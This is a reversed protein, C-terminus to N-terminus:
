YVKSFSQAHVPVVLIGNHTDIEVNVWEQTVCKEAKIWIEKSSCFQYGSKFKAAHTQEASGLLGLTV